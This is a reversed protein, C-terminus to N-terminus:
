RAELLTAVDDKYLPAWGAQELAAKLASDQPLLAHTFRFSHLIEQWGPRAEMLVLYQKMFAAGYFDSRGDFFVKRAGNFRYILYGGFSDPALLRAEAPLKEVVQAAQVPFRNSPFGVPHRLALLMVLVAVASFAVGTVRQDILRLRASYGLRGRLAATFAGNALPLILLAVL